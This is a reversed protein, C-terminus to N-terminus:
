WGKHPPWQDPARVKLERSNDMVFRLPKSVTDTSRSISTYEEDIIEEDDTRGDRGESKAYISSVSSHPSLQDARPDETNFSSEVVEREVSAVLPNKNGNVSDNEQQKSNTSKSEILNSSSVIASSKVLNDIIRWASACSDEFREPHCGNDMMEKWFSEKLEKERSAGIEQRIEGWMTTAIGITAKSGPDFQSFLTSFRQFYALQSKPMRNNTIPYLYLFGIARTQINRIITLISRNLNKNASVTQYAM